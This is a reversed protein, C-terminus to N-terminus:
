RNSHHIAEVWGGEGIVPETRCRLNEWHYFRLYGFIMTFKISKRHQNPLNALLQCHENSSVPMLTSAGGAAMHDTAGSGRGVGPGCKTETDHGLM